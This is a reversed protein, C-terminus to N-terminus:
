MSLPVDVTLVVREDHFVQVDSFGCRGWVKEACEAGCFPAFPSLRSRKPEDAFTSATM